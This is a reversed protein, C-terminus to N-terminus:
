HFISYLMTLTGGVLALALLLDSVLVVVLLPDLTRM